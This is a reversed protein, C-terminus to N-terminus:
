IIDKLQHKMMTEVLEKFSIDYKWGISKIKSADGVLTDVEAPRFYLPNIVVYKSWDTIGAYNFAIDLFQRISHNEGTAVVYDDPQSQQLMLHMAQCNHVLIGQAFYNHYTETQLNFTEIEKQFQINYISQVKIISNNYRLCEMNEILNKAKIWVIEDDSIVAFPHEQHM